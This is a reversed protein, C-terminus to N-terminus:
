QIYRHLDFGSDNGIDVGFEEHYASERLVMIKGELVSVLGGNQILQDLEYCFLNVTYRQAKRMLDSLDAISESSNLRAIIQKGEDDYPVIVSTTQDDIVRFHEAATRYSNVLFLPLNKRKETQYAKLYLNQGRRSM